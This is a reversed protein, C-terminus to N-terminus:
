FCAVRTTMFTMAVQDSTETEVMGELLPSEYVMNRAALIQRKSKARSFIPSMQGLTFPGRHIFIRYTNLDGPKTKSKLMPM